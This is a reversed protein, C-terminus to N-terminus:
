IRGKLFAMFNIFDILNQKKEEREESSTAFQTQKAEPYVILHKSVVWKPDGNGLCADLLLCSVDVLKM